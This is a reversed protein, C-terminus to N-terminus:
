ARIEPDEAPCSRASTGISRRACKRKSRTVEAVVADRHHFPGASPPLDCGTWSFKTSPRSEAVDRACAASASGRRWDGLIAEANACLCVLRPEGARRKGQRIMQSPVCERKPNPATRGVAAGSLTASSDWRPFLSVVSGRPRTGRAQAFPLHPHLETRKDKEPPPTRSRPWAAVSM